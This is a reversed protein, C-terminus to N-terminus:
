TQGSFWIPNKEGGVKQLSVLFKKDGTKRKRGRIATSCSRLDGAEKKPSPTSQKTYRAKVLLASITQPRAGHYYFLQYLLFSWFHFTQVFFVWFVISLDTQQTRQAFNGFFFNMFLYQNETWCFFNERRHLITEVVFHRVGIRDSGYSIENSFHNVFFQGAM